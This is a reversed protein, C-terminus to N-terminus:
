TRPIRGFFAAYREAPPTGEYPAIVEYLGCLRRVYDSLNMGCQRAREKLLAHERDSMAIPRGRREEGEVPHLPINMRGWLQEGVDAVWAGHYWAAHPRPGNPIHEGRINTQHLPDEYGAEFHEDRAAAVLGAGWGDDAWEQETM